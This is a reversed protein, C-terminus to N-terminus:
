GSEALGRVKITVYEEASTSPNTRTLYATFQSNDFSTILDEDSLDTLAVKATPISTQTTGSGSGGSKGCSTVTLGLSILCLSALVLANKKSKFKM